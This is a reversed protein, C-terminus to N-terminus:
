NRIYRSDGGGGFNGIGSFSRCPTVIPDVCRYDIELRNWSRESGTVMAPSVGCGSPYYYRNPFHRVKTRVFQPRMGVIGPAGKRSFKLTRIRVLGNTTERLTYFFAFRRFMFYRAGELSHIESYTFLFALEIRLVVFRGTGFM